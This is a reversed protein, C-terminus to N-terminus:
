GGARSCRCAPPTSSSSSRRPSRRPAPSPSSSRQRRLHRPRPRVDRRRGERVGGGGRRPVEEGRARAQRVKCGSRSRRRRRRRAARRCWAWPWPTSRRSSGRCRRCCPRSSRASSPSSRRRRRRGLLRDDGRGRHLRGPDAPRVRPGAAPVPLRRRRRRVAGDRRGLPPRRRLGQEHARRGEPARHDGVHLHDPLRRRARRAAARRELEAADGGRAARRSRPWRCRARRGAGDIVISTSRPGAPGGRVEDIKAVQAANECVISRPGPTASSGSASTPRTPRTSRCSSRGPRRPPSTSSRSSSAPTPSSARGSRRGRRRARCARPRHRPGTGSSPSPSSTGSATARFAGGGRADGYREAAARTLAAMSLKTTGADITMLRRYWVSRRTVSARRTTPVSGPEAPDTRRRRSVQGVRDLEIDAVVSAGAGVGVPGAGGPRREGVAVEPEDPEPQEGRVDARPHLVERQRGVDLSRVSDAASTPSSTNMCSPGSSSSDIGAPTSASRKGRRATGTAMCTTWITNLTTSAASTAVSAGSHVSNAADSTIPM